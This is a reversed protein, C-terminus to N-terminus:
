STTDIVSCEVVGGAVEGCIVISTPITTSCTASVNEEDAVCEIISANQVVTNQVVANSLTIKAELSFATLLSVTLLSSIM